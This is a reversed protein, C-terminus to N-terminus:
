YVLVITTYYIIALVAHFQLIQNNSQKTFFQSFQASFTKFCTNNLAFPFSEVNERQGLKM